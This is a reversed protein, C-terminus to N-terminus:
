GRRRSSSSRRVGDGPRRVPRAQDHQAGIVADIGAHSPKERDRPAELLLRPPCHEDREQRDGGPMLARDGGDQQRRGQGPGEEVLASKPERGGARQDAEGDEQQEPAPQVWVEPHAQAQDPQGGPREQHGGGVASAQHRNREVESQLHRRWPLQLHRGANQLRQGGRSEMGRRHQGDHADHRHQDVVTEPKAQQPAGAIQGAPSVVDNIPRYAADVGLKRLAQVAFADLYAYSERFSMGAVVEAPLYLSWTVTRGPEALMTGGGSLRRTITFGRRRVAAEDVENAVSQSSGLVLTPEIWGWFRLTPARAGTVVRELLVEDLAM